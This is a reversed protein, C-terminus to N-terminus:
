SRPVMKPRRVPPLTSDIREEIGGTTFHGYRRHGRDNCRSRFLAAQGPRKPRRISTPLTCCVAILARPGDLRRRFAFLVHIIPVVAAAGGLPV